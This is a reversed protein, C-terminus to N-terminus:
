GSPSADRRVPREWPVSLDSSLCCWWRDTHPDPFEPLGRCWCGSTDMATGTLFGPFAPLLLRVTPTTGTATTSASRPPSRPTAASAPEDHATACVVAVSDGLIWVSPAVSEAGTRAPMHVGYHDGHRGGVGLRACDSGCLKPGVGMVGGGDGARHQRLRQESEEHCILASGAHCDLGASDTRAITGRSSM